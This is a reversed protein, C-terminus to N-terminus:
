VDALSCSKSLDEMRGAEEPLAEETARPMDDGATNASDKAPSAEPRPM